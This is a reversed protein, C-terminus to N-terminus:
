KDDSMLWNQMAIDRALKKNSKEIRSDEDKIKNIYVIVDAISDFNEDCWKNIQDLSLQVGAQHGQTWADISMLNGKM